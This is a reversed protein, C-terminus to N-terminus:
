SRAKVYEGPADCLPKLKRGGPKRAKVREPAQAEIWQMWHPWWSGPTETAKPSGTTSRARAAQRRDLVPVEAQRRTSSAPSTAPARGARLRGAGGFAQSGLFVSRAPAIHDERTALNYIPIKVKELDLEAGGIEM